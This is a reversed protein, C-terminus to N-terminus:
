LVRGDPSFEVHILFMFLFMYIVYFVLVVNLLIVYIHLVYIKVQVCNSTVKFKCCYWWQSPPHTDIHEPKICPSSHSTSQRCYYMHFCTLFKWGIPHLLIERGRWVEDLLVGTNKGSAGYRPYSAILLFLQLSRYQRSRSLPYVGFSM